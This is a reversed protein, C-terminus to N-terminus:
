ECLLPFKGNVYFMETKFVTPALGNNSVFTPYFEVSKKTFYCSFTQFTKEIAQDESFAKPTFINLNKGEKQSRASYSIFAEVGDARMCHGLAQSEQYSFPSSIWEKFEAFPSTSLDIGKPTSAEVEFATYNVAKGGLDGESALLFSLRHYAKECMATELEISAYFLSRETWKGFRTGRKLPPYRFPTFLLYHLGKLALEDGYLKLKPKSEDILQELIEHEELTDVMKRTYSKSQDEVIRWAKTELPKLYKVGQTEEWIKRM